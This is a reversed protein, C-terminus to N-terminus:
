GRSGHSPPGALYVRKLRTNTDLAAQIWGGCSLINGFMPMQMDTHHDFVLLEFEGEIKDLWLKSLYHYNGSDLFHIGSPGMLSIREKIAAEAEEDCYGILAKYIELSWGYLAWIRTFNRTKM